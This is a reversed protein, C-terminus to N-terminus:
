NGMMKRQRRLRKQAARKQRPKRQRAKERSCYNCGPIRSLKSCGALLSAAMVASMAAAAFRNIKRM